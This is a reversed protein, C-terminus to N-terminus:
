REKWKEVANAVEHLKGTMVRALPSLRGIDMVQDTVRVVTTRRTGRGTKARRKVTWLHRVSVSAIGLELSVRLVLV